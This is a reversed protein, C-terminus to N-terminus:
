WFNMPRILHIGAVECSPVVQLGLTMLALCAAVMFSPKMGQSSVSAVVPTTQKPLCKLDVHTDLAAQLMPMRVTDEVSPAGRRIEKEFARDEVLALAVERWKEARCPEPSEDIQQLLEARDAHSLEGDILRQIKMSDVVQRTVIQGKM